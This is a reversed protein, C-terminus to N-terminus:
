EPPQIYVSITKLKHEVYNREIEITGRIGLEFCDQAMVLGNLNRPLFVVIDPVKLANLSLRLLEKGHIKNSLKVCDLNFHRSGHDLYDVGGWPPSLFISDVRFPLLRLGGFRYGHVSQLASGGLKAAGHSCMSGAKYLQLVDCVDGLIFIVKDKPVGYVRCNNAAAKLKSQDTDVCIVLEVDKQLAFAIANGGIGGFADLIIKKKSLRSAIHRAILEPTVSYWSEADVMQIGADMKSFLSHRQAWYKDAVDKHPNRIGDGCDGNPLHKIPNKPVKPINAAVRQIFIASTADHQPCDTVSAAESATLLISVDLWAGKPGRYTTVTKSTSSDPHKKHETQKSDIPIVNATIKVWLQHKMEKFSDDDDPPLLELCDEAWLKKPIFRRKRQNSSQGKGRRRKNGM